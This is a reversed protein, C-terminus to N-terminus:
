LARTMTVHPIGAEEYEGGEVTFGHRAYFGAAHTQAHLVVRADGRRRAEDILRLLIATGAGRGRWDRQVAMRGIHGDPLLRGTGVPRGDGAYALAHLSVADMADWELEVPVGQERVFVELRLPRAAACAEEWPLVAVRPPAEGVIDVPTGPPVLEFLEIIDSNRMRICGISAPIGFPASDPAGHIYIYRRMTDVSGLRNRGPECGSLWLIRSLIWDRDPHRAAFEPSWIEGTPRRGAFVAGTPQGAGIKARILHRGRPTCHSGSEEGLGNRATSVIYRRIVAGDPGILAMTQTPVEVRLALRSV